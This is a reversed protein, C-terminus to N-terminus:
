GQYWSKKSRWSRTGHGGLQQSKILKGLGQSHWEALLPKYVMESREPRKSWGGGQVGAQPLGPSFECPWLKVAVEKLGWLTGWVEQGMAERIISLHSFSPERGLAYVDWFNLSDNSGTTCVRPWSALTASSYNEGKREELELKKLHSQLPHSKLHFLCDTEAGAQFHKRMNARRGEWRRHGGGRTGEKERPKWKRISAHAYGKAWPRINPILCQPVGDWGYWTLWM